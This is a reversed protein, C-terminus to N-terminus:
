WDGSDSRANQRRSRKREGCNLREGADLGAAKAEAELVFLKDNEGVIGLALLDRRNLQVAQFFYRGVHAWCGAPVMAKGGVKGYGAYGDTQLIGAFEGLFQRPGERGRDLQFDFAVAGGPRSYQWLYAQHNKGKTRESQVDVPTEDAQIYGGTVWWGRADPGSRAALL